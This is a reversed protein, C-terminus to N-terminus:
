CKVLLLLTSVNNECVIIRTCFLCLLEVMVHESPTTRVSPPKSSLFVVQVELICVKLLRISLNRIKMKCDLQVARSIVASESM